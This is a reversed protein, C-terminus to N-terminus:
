GLVPKPSIIRPKAPCLKEAGPSPCEATNERRDLIDELEHLPKGTALAEEVLKEDRKARDRTDM